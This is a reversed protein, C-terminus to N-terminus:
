RKCGCATSHHVPCVDPQGVTSVPQAFGFPKPKPKEDKDPRFEMAEVDRHAIVVSDGEADIVVLFDHPYDQWRRVMGEFGDGPVASVITHGAKTYVRMKGGDHSSVMRDRM